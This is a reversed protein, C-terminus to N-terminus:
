RRVGDWQQEAYVIQNAKSTPPAEVKGSLAATLAALTAEYDTMRVALSEFDNLKNSLGVAHGNIFVWNGDQDAIKDVQLAGKELMSEELKLLLYKGLGMPWRQRVDNTVKTYEKVLGNVKSMTGDVKIKDGTFIAPITDLGMGIGDVAEVVVESLDGVTKLIDGLSSLNKGKGATVYKNLNDIAAVAYAKLSLYNDALKQHGGQITTFLEDAKAEVHESIEVLMTKKADALNATARKAVRTAAAEGLEIAKVIRKNMDKGLAERQTRILAMDEAGAEKADNIIGTLVEFQSEVHEANAAVDNTLTNLRANFNTEANAIAGAAEKEYTAIAAASADNNIAAKTEVKLLEEYMKGM